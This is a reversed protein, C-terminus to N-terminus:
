YLYSEAGKGHYQVAGELAVCAGGGNVLQRYGHIAHADDSNGDRCRSVARADDDM